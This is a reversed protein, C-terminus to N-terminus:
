AFATRNQQEFRIRWGGITGRLGWDGITVFCNKRVTDSTTCNVRYARFGATPRSGSRGEGKQICVPVLQDLVCPRLVGAAPRRATRDRHQHKQRVPLFFKVCVQVADPLKHKVQQDVKVNARPGHERNAHSLEYLGHRGHRRDARNASTRYAAILIPYNEMSKDGIRCCSGLRRPPWFHWQSPVESGLTSGHWGHM